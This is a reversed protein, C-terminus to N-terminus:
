VCFWNCMENAQKYAEKDGKFVFELLWDYEHNCDCCIINYTNLKVKTNESGCKICKNVDM